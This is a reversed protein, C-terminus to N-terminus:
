LNFGSQKHWRIVQVCIGTKKSTLSRIMCKFRLYSKTDCCVIEFNLSFFIYTKFHNFDVLLWVILFFYFFFYLKLHEKLIHYESITKLIRAGNLFTLSVTAIMLSDKKKGLCKCKRRWSHHHSFIQTDLSYFWLM